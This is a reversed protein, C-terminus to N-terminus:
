RPRGSGKKGGASATQVSAGRPIFIDDDDDDNESSTKTPQPDPTGESPKAGSSEAVAPSPDVQEDRGAETSSFARVTCNDAFARAEPESHVPRDTAESM